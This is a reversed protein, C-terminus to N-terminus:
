GGGVEGEEPGTSGCGDGIEEAATSGCGGGIEEPWTLGCGDDIEVEEPGTSGSGGGSEEWIIWSGEVIIEDQLETGAGLWLDQSGRGEESTGPGSLGRSTM